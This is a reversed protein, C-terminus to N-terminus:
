ALVEASALAWLAAAVTGADAAEIAVRKTRSKGGSVVRVRSKPAIGLVQALYRCLETNAAGDRPAAALDVPLAALASLEDALASALAPSSSSPSAAAALMLRTIQKNPKVEVTLLCGASPSSGELFPLAIPVASDDKSSAGDRGSEAAAAAKKKAEEEPTESSTKKKGHQKKKKTGPKKRVPAADGSPSSSRGSSSSSSSSGSSSSSSGTGKPRAGGGGGGNKGSSGGGSGRGSGDAGGGEADRYIKMSTLFLTELGCGRCAAAIKKMEDGAFETFGVPQIRRLDDLHQGPRGRLVEEGRVVFHKWNLHQLRSVYEQCGDEPGEVVVVGPWGIKSFGALRLELAWEIIAKRKGEAAIHHSYM